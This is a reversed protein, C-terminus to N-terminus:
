QTRFNKANLEKLTDLYKVTAKACGFICTDYNAQALGDSVLRLSEGLAHFLERRPTDSERTALDSFPYDGLLNYRVDDIFVSLFFLVFRVTDDSLALDALELERRLAHLSKTGEGLPDSTLANGAKKIKEVIGEISAADQGPTKGM